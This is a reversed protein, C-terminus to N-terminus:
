SDEPQPFFDLTHLSSAINGEKGLVFAMFRTYRLSGVTIAPGM